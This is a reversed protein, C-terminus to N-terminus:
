TFGIDAWWDAPPVAFHVAGSVETVRGRVVHFMLPRRCAGCTTHITADSAMMAPIGFADWACNAWWQGSASTVRFPTTVASFPM